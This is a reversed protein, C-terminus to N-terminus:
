LEIQPTKYGVQEDGTNEVSKNQLFNGMQTGHLVIIFGGFM